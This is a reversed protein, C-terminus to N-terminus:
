FDKTVAMCARTIAASTSRAVLRAVVVVVVVCARHRYQSRVSVMVFTRDPPILSSCLRPYDVVRLRTLSGPDYVVVGAVGVLSGVRFLIFMALCVLLALM